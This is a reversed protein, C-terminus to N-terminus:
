KLPVFPDDLAPNWGCLIAESTYGDPQRGERSLYFRGDGLAFLGTTGHQSHWGRIGTADHRLGMPALALLSGEEGKLGVLCKTQPAISGDIAFLSYNPYHPKKGRYVAALWVGTAADYELNQIGYTTNGTFVFFKGDPASPGSRHMNNQNLPREYRAWDTISYRLLVQHDNDDRTTDGYIGYAACLQHTGDPEGFPPGFSLGDIGSCGYRHACIGPATYDDLVERLFVCTMIGDREANMEPRTIRGSDFIAIYFGDAAASQGLRARISQGVADNKYELSGYVRGDADNFALCGLHGLLGTVSGVLQGDLTTKVLMDTFSFYVYERQTDVAIGQVHGADWAGSFIRDPMKNQKKM